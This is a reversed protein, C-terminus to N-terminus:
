ATKTWACTATIWASRTDLVTVKEEDLNLNGIRLLAAEGIRLGSTALLSILARVRPDSDMLLLRMEDRTPIRDLSSDIDQPIGVKLRVQKGDIPVSEHQLYAKVAYLYYRVTKPALGRGAQVSAFRELAKYPDLEGAKIREVVTDPGPAELSSAFLSM